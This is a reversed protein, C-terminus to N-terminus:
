RQAEAVHAEMEELVAAREGALDKTEGIDSSLDYLEFPKKPNEQV